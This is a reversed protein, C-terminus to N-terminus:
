VIKSSLVRVRSIIDSMPMTIIHSAQQLNVSINDPFENVFTLRVIINLRDNTFGALGNAFVDVQQGTWKISSLKAFASFLGDSSAEQLKTKIM